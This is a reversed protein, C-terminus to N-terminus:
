YKEKGKKKKKKRKRRKTKKSASNVVPQVKARSNLENPNNYNTRKKYMYSSYFLHLKYNNKKKKISKTRRISVFSSTVRHLIKIFRTPCAYIADYRYVDRM